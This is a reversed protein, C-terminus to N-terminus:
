IIDSRDVITGLTYNIGLLQFILIYIELETVKRLNKINISKLEEKM